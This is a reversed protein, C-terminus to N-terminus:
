EDDEKRSNKIYRHVLVACEKCLDYRFDGMNIADHVEAKMAGYAQIELVCKGLHTDDFLEKGCKDCYCKYM